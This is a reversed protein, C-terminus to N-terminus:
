NLYSDPSYIIFHSPKGVRPDLSEDERLSYYPLLESYSTSNGYSLPPRDQAMEQVYNCTLDDHSATTRILKSDIFIARGSQKAGKELLNLPVVLPAPRRVRGEAKERVVLYAM